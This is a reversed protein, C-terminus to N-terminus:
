ESADSTESESSQSSESESSESDLSTESLASSEESSSVLELRETDVAAVPQELEVIQPLQEEDQLEEVEIRCEQDQEGKTSWHCNEFSVCESVTYGWGECTDDMELGSEVIENSLCECSLEEVEESNEFLGFLSFKIASAQKAAIVLASGIKTLKNM